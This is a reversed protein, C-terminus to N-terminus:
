KAGLPKLTETEINLFFKNGQRSQLTLGNGKASIIHLSGVPRPTNLQKRKFNPNGPQGNDIIVFGHVTLPDYKVADDTPDFRLAGAYVTMEVGNVIEYWANEILYYNSGSGLQDRVEDGPLIGRQPALQPIRALAQAEAELVTREHKEKVENLRKQQEWASKPQEPGATRIQPCPRAPGTPPNCFHELDSPSNPSGAAQTVPVSSLSAGLIFVWAGFKLLYSAM